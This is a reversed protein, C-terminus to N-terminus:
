KEPNKRRFQFGGDKRGERASNGTESTIIACFVTRCMRRITRESDLRQNKGDIGCNPTKLFSMLMRSFLKLFLHDLEQDTGKLRLIAAYRTKYRFWFYSPGIIMSLLVVPHIQRPFRGGEPLSSLYGAFAPLDDCRCVGIM